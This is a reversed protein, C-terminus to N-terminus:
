EHLGMSGVVVVDPASFTWPDLDTDPHASLDAERSFQFVVVGSGTADATVAELDRGILEWVDDELAPSEWSTSVGPGALAWPCM